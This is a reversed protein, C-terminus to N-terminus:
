STAAALTWGHTSFRTEGIAPVKDKMPSQGHTQMAILKGGLCREYFSFAEACQGNFTLYPSLEM